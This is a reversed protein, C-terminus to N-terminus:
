LVKDLDYLIADLFKKQKHQGPYFNVPASAALGGVSLFPYKLRHWAVLMGGYSGGFLITQCSAKGAACGLITKFKPLFLSFDALAQEISLYSINLPSFSNVGGFPLSTGYYRHEVFLVAASLEEAIEFIAGTANYFDEIEGEGGLYFLIPGTPEKWNATYTLFKLKFTNDGQSYFNFHDVLTDTYNIVPPFASLAGATPPATCAV